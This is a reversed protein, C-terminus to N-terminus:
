AKEGVRVAEEDLVTACDREASTSIVISLPTWSKESINL